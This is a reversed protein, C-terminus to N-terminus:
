GDGQETGWELGIWPLFRSGARAVWLINLITPISQPDAAMYTVLQRTISVYKADVKMDAKVVKVAADM